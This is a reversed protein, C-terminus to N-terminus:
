VRRVQCMIAQISNIGIEPDYPPDYSMVANVNTELSGREPADREPLWWGFSASVVEPTIDKTLEAVHQFSGRLTEVSVMDGHQIGRQQAASPHIQLKPYPVLKRLWNEAASHSQWYNHDRRTTLMLPCDRALKPMNRPSEAPERFAPLPDYGHGELTTSYLEVKGSPTPFGQEVYKKYQREIPM